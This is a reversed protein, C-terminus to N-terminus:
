PVLAEVAPRIAAWLRDPGFRVPDDCPLGTLAATEAVIRRADAEDPYLSTNLAIGVVKSPAVLAAM